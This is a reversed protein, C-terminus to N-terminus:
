QRPFATSHALHRRSVYLGLSEENFGLVLTSITLGINVKEERSTREELPIRGIISRKM